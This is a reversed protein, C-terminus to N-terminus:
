AVTAYDFSAKVRDLVDQEQGRALAELITGGEFADAEKRVVGPVAGQRLHQHLVTAIEDMTTIRASREAPVGSVMWKEVAQRSVGLLRGMESATLKLIKMARELPQSSTREFLVQDTAKSFRWYGTADGMKWELPERPAGAVSRAINVMALVVGYGDQSPAEFPVVYIQHRLVSTVVGVPITRKVEAVITGLEDAVLLYYTAFRRTARLDGQMARPIVADLAGMLEPISRGFSATAEELDGFFIGEAPDM